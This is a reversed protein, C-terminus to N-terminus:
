RPPRSVFIGRLSRFRGFDPFTSEPSKLLLAARHHADSRSDYCEAVQYGCIRALDPLFDRAYLWPCGNHFGEEDPIVHMMAARPKALDHISRFVQWQDRLGGPGGVHETTGANTVLDFCGLLDAPLPQSLDLPRAGNEGNLDISVHHMGLWDLVIKAPGRLRWGAHQNGLECVALGRSPLDLLRCAEVLLWATDDTIM